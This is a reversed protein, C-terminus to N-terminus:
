CSPIVSWFCGASARQRAGLRRGWAAGRLTRGAIIVQPCGVQVLGLGAEIGTLKQSRAEHTAYLYAMRQLPTPKWDIKTVM